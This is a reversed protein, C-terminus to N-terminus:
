GGHRLAILLGFVLHLGGFGLALFGTGWAAPALLAIAGVLLFLSGMLPVLRISFAGASAVAAGYCLLWVGPLLRYSATADAVGTRAFHEKTPGVEYGYVALTLLVGVALMPVIGLIFKRGTGSLVPSDSRRAKFALAWAGIVFGVLAEAAWVALWSSVTSQQSAVAAAVLASVGMAVGGWGPVATFTGTRAMTERIFRLHADARQAPAAAPESRRLAPRDQHM